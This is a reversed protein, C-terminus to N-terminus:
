DNYKPGGHYRYANTSETDTAAGRDFANFAYVAQQDSSTATEAFAQGSMTMLVAMSAALALKKTMTNNGQPTAGLIVSRMAARLVGIRSTSIHARLGGTGMLNPKVFRKSAGLV